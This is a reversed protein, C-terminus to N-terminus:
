FKGKESGDGRHVIISYGQLKTPKIIKKNQNGKAQLCVSIKIHM